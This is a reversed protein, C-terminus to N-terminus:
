AVESFLWEACRALHEYDSFRPKMAPVPIAYFPQIGSQYLALFRGIGERYQAMLEQAKEGEFLSQEKPIGLGAKIVWYSFDVAQQKIDAAILASLPLQCAYGHAIEANTPPTGTKYDVLALAGNKQQELRDIRCHLWAQAPPALAQESKMTQEPWIQGAQKRRAIEWQAAGQAMSELRPRWVMRVQPWGEYEAVKERVLAAFKEAGEAESVGSDMQRVFKEWIAHVITGLLAADPLQDIPDLPRLRLMHKAYFGYPDRLWQEMHTVWLQTPIADPPPTPAPPSLKAPQLPETQKAAWEMISTASAPTLGAADMRQLWRSPLTEVGTARRAYSLIVEDASALCIFDHAQLGIHEQMSPLGVRLRMGENLWEDGTTRAPWVDETLGGLIVRDFHQLRAEIPSLIHLRPHADQPAYCKISGALQQLLPLYMAPSIEGADGFALGIADLWSEPQWHPGALSEAVELHACWLDSAAVYPSQAMHALRQLALVSQKIAASADAGTEEQAAFALLNQAVEQHSRIGRLCDREIRSVLHPHDAPAFIGCWPHKLLALWPLAQLPALAAGSVCGLWQMLPTHTAPHGVGLNPTIGAGELMACVRQMLNQDHTILAVSRSPQHAIERMLLAIARAEHMEDTCRMQRLSQSALNAALDPEAFRHTLPAPLCVRRWLAQPSQHAVDPLLPKVQDRPLDLMALLRRLPWQPHSPEIADWLAADAGTDLASLWIAGRPLEGITKLLRATAPQSGTSGIAMVPHAPPHAQWHDSLQLLLANRRQLPNMLNNQTLYDPWFELVDHLAQLSEQWHEAYDAPQLSLVARYPIMERDLEDMLGIVDHALHAAEEMTLKALGLKTQQDHLRRAILMHRRQPSIAPLVARSSAASQWFLGEEPEGIPFIQPLVALHPSQEFFAQRLSACARHGPLLLVCDALALPDSQYDAVLKAALLPLMRHPADCTFLDPKSMGLWLCIPWMQLTM